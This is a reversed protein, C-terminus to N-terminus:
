QDIFGSAFYAGVAERENALSKSFEGSSLTGNILRQFKQVYVSETKEIITLINESASRSSYLLMCVIGYMDTHSTITDCM